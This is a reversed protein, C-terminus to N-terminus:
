LVDHAKGHPKLTRHAAQGEVVNLGVEFDAPIGGLAHAVRDLVHETRELAHIGVVRLVM